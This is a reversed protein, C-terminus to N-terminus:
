SKIWDLEEDEKMEKEGMLVQGRVLGELEKKYRVFGNM